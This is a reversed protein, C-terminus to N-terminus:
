LSIDKLERYLSYYKEKGMIKIAKKSMTNLSKSNNLANQISDKLINTTVCYNMGLNMIAGAKEVAVTTEYQNEAVIITITPLGLFCREWTASGGAGLALDADAMLKAMNDVQCLFTTNPITACKIKIQEKHPNTLGVVVDIAIDPRNLLQIAELAKSTENTLDTGGFFVLIRRIKGDRTRMNKRVEHFEPRLLAYKPGLLMRCHEPVLGRYRAEMNEYINQDLLLDCHHPRDALDDIVMIKNACPRMKTEWRADLAYHDVVLWNIEGQGELIAKTEGADAQWGTEPCHAHHGHPDQDDAPQGSYYLRHVNYGKKEVYRCLNGPLPRCIFSISAGKERLDDALALCRMVHGTGMQVSADVRFFVKM